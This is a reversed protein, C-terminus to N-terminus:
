KGVPYEIPTNNDMENTDSAGKDLEKPIASSHRIMLVTLLTVLSVVLVVATM